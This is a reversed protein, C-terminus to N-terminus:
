QAHFHWVGRAGQLCRVSIVPRPDAGARRPRADGFTPSLTGDSFIEGLWWISTFAAYGFDEGGLLIRGNPEVAISLARSDLSSNSYDGHFTFYGGGPWATDYYGDTAAARGTLATVILISVFLDILRKSM